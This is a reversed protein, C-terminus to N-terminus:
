TSSTPFEEFQVIGLKLLTDGNDLQVRQEFEGTQLNYINGQSSGVLSIGLREKGETSVTIDLNPFIVPAEPKYRTLLQERPINPVFFDDENMQYDGLLLTKKPSDLTKCYVLRLKPLVQYVQILGGQMVVVKQHRVYLKDVKSALVCDVPWSSQNSISWCVLCGATTGVAIIDEECDFCSVAGSKGREPVDLVM